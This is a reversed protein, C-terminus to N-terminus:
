EEATSGQCPWTLQISVTAKHNNVWPQHSMEKKEKKVVMTRKPLIDEMDRM